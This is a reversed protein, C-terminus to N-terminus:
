KGAARQKELEANFKAEAGDAYARCTMPEPHPAQTNAPTWGSADAHPTLLVDCPLARV